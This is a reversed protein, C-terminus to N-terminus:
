SEDAGLLVDRVTVGGRTVGAREGVEGIAIGREIDAGPSTDGDSALASSLALSTPSFTALTASEGTEM